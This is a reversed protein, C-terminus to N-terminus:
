NSVLSRINLSKLSNLNSSRAIGSRLANLLRVKENNKWSAGLTTKILNELDTTKEIRSASLEFLEELHAPPISQAMKSTFNIEGGKLSCLVAKRTWEDQHGKLYITELASQVSPTPEAKGLTLALQFRVTSDTDKALDVLKHHILQDGIMGSEEVLRIVNERIRPNPDALGALLDSQEIIGLGQLSWLAHLRALDSKHKTLKRLRPM